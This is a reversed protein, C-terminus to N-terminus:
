RIEIRYPIDVMTRNEIKVHKVDRKFFPYLEGGPVKIFELKNVSIWLPEVDHNNILYGEKGVRGLIGLVDIELVGKAPIVDTKYLYDPRIGLEERQAVRFARETEERIARRFMDELQAATIEVIPALPPPKPVPVPPPPPARVFVTIIKGTVQVGNVMARTYVKWTNTRPLSFSCSFKGFADTSCAGVLIDDAIVEVRTYPVPKEDVLLIGSAVTREGIFLEPKAVHWRIVPKPPPVPPPPAVVPPPKLALYVGTAVIGAGVIWGIEPNGAQPVYYPPM